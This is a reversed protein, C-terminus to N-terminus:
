GIKQHSGLSCKQQKGFILYLGIALLVAPVILQGSFVDPNIKGALFALGTAICLYAGANRFKHKVGSILGIVILIMPWSMLWVPVFNTLGLTHLLLMAGLAIFLVGVTIGSNARKNVQNEM